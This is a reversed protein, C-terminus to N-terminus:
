WENGATAQDEAGSTSTMYHSDERRADFDRDADPKFPTEITSRAKVDGRNEDMKSTAAYSGPNLLERNRKRALNRAM